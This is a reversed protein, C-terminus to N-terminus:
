VLRPPNDRDNSLHTVEALMRGKADAKDTLTTLLVHYRVSPSKQASENLLKNWWTPPQITCHANEGNPLVKQAPSSCVTAFVFTRAFGFMEDLIWPIDQEPCHELVDTCIVADFRERPLEAFPAYGPDYCRLSRIGWYAPLSDYTQGNSLKVTGPQYQRGKGSGYDLISETPYRDILKKIRYAHPALTAGDFMKEPPVGMAADGNVHMQYYLQQLEVYRPSPSERSFTTTM